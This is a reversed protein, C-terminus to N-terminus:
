GKVSGLMIGKAFYKQLFPYVCLIPITAVIIVCYKVVDPPPVYENIDATGVQTGYSSAILQRLIVQIPYMKANNIYLIFDFWSNWHSVAFMLAFTALLPKSLPLVIQFYIRLDNCGDIKAAEELERPLSKFFSVFIILNFATVANPLLVALYSDILGLKMVIIYTPIMGGSFVLTFIILPMIIKYGFVGTHSLPYALLSTLLLNLVTGIITISASVTLATSMTSSTFLVYKYTEFTFGVPFLVFDHKILLTPDSLSASLVFLFPLFCLLGFVLFIFINLGDFLNSGFSRKKM